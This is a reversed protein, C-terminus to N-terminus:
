LCLMLIERVLHLITSSRYVLSVNLLSKLEPVMNLFFDAVIRTVFPPSAVDVADKIHYLKYSSYDEVGNCVCWTGDTMEILHPLSIM